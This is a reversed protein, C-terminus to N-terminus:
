KKVKLLGALELVFCAKVLFQRDEDTLNMVNMQINDFYIEGKRVMIYKHDSLNLFVEMM